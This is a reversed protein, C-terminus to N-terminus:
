FRELAADMQIMCENSITQLLDDIYRDNIGIIEDSEFKFYYSPNIITSIIELDIQM